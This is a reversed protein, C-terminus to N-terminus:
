QFMMSVKAFAKNCNMLWKKLNAPMSSSSTKRSILASWTVMDAISIRNNILWDNKGIQKALITIAKKKDEENGSLIQLIPFM